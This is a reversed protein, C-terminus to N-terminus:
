ILSRQPLVAKYVAVSKFFCFMCYNNDGSSIGDISLHILDLM